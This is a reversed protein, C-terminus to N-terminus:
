HGYRAVYLHEWAKGNVILWALNKTVKFKKAILITGIGSEYMEYILQVDATKLKSHPSREGYVHRGKAKMDQQNDKQTGMFLHKPNCCLRNDCKHCIVMKEPIEGRHLMWSYRHTFYFKGDRKVQGYGKPNQMGSWNWCGTAPDKICRALFKERRLHDRM